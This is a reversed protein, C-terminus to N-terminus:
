APAAQVGAITVEWENARPEPAAQGLTRALSLVRGKFVGINSWDTHLEVADGLQLLLLGDKVAAKFSIVSQPWCIEAIWFDALAAAYAADQVLYADKIGEARGIKDISDQRTVDVRAGFNGEIDQQYRVTLANVM